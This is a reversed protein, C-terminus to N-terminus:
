CRGHVEPALLVARRRGLAVIAAELVLGYVGHARERAVGSRGRMLHLQVLIAYGPTCGLTDRRLFIAAGHARPNYKYFFDHVIIQARTV